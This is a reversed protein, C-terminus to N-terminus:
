YLIRLVVEAILLVAEVCSCATLINLRITIYKKQKEDLVEDDPLKKIYSRIQLFLTVMVILVALLVAALIYRLM